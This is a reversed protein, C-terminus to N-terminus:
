KNDENTWDKQSPEPDEREEQEDKDANEESGPTPEDNPQLTDAIDQLIIDIPAEDKRLHARIDLYWERDEHNGEQDLFNFGERAMRM